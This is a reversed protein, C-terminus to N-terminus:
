NSFYNFFIEFVFMFSNFIILIILHFLIFQAFFPNIFLQSENSIKFDDFHNKVHIGKKRKTNPFPNGYKEKELRCVSKFKLVSLMQFLKIKDDENKLVFPVIM